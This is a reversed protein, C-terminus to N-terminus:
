DKSPAVMTIANEPCVHVCLGCSKCSTSDFYFEGTKNDSSISLEPCIFECLRCAVPTVADTSLGPVAGTPCVAVCAGCAHCLATESRSIEGNEIRILASRGHINDCIKLCRGCQICRNPAPPPLPVGLQVALSRLPASTPARQLLVAVRYQRHRELAPSTTRVTLPETIIFDCSTTETRTGDKEIEVLCVGCGASGILPHYCLHPINKGLTHVLDILRTGKPCKTVAGDIDVTLTNDSHLHQRVANRQHRDCGICIKPHHEVPGDLCRWDCRKQRRCLSQDRRPSRSQSM